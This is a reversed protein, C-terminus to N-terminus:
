TLTIPKISVRISVGNSERWLSVSGASPDTWTVGVQYAGSIHQEWEVEGGTAEFRWIAYNSSTSYTYTETTFQMAPDTGSWQAFAFHVGSSLFLILFILRRKM